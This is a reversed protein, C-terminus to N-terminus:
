FDNIMRLIRERQEQTLEDVVAPKEKPSSKILRKFAESMKSINEL